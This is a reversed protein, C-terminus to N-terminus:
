ANDDRKKSLWSTTKGDLADFIWRMWDLDSQNVQLDFVEETRICIRHTNYDGDHRTPRQLEGGCVSDQSRRRFQCDAHPCWSPREQQWVTPENV